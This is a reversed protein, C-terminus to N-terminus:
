AGALERWNERYYRFKEEFVERPTIEVGLERIKKELDEHIKESDESETKKELEIIYGYGRTFDLTVKIGEWSFRKRRRFWKIETEYGLTELLKELSSFDGRAFRVEIEERQGDHLGGKKLWLKAHTDCKQLRLDAEGSLYYTVQDEEGLFEANRKMFDSLKRYQEESIFSRTEVEIM